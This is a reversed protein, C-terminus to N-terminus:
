SPRPGDNVAPSPPACRMARDLRRLLAAAVRDAEGRPGKLALAGSAARTMTELMLQPRATALVTNDVLAMAAQGATIVRPRWRAGPQYYTSVILGVTLATSGTRGGLAEVPTKVGDGNGNRLSLPKPYPHVRGARDLVAYEDSYYTAGARVLAAVLSSKGTRSRGPIIIAQDNWGVVGAHVFLGTRAHQAIQFHLDSELGSLLTEIDDTRVLSTPGRHLDLVPKTGLGSGDERITLSYLVDVTELPEITSYVPLVRRVRDLVILSDAQIGIRAGHSVFTFATTPSSHDFRELM